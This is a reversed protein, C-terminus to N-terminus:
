DTAGLETAHAPIREDDIESVPAIDLWPDTGYTEACLAWKEKLVRARSKTVSFLASRPMLVGRTVPAIGTQQFILLFAPLETQTAWQECWLNRTDMVAQDANDLHFIADRERILERAAMAAEVYIVDQLNYRYNAITREITKDIPSGNRNAFSKLDVIMRMKLKDFRAKMPVGTERCYWFVSVEPHGGDLAKALEPHALIMRAAIRVRRDTKATVSLKSGHEQMHEAILKDWILAEPDLDLLQEIWDDKKAPRANDDYGKTCPKADLAVIGAKIESTTTLVGAFDAKDLGIAYRDLYVEEGELVFCHIAKGFNFHPKEDEDERDLNLWSSAWFDMSSISMRKLGSTSSAPRAHYDEDSMGFYIGPAPFAPQDKHRPSRIPEAPPADMHPTGLIDAVTEVELGQATLRDYEAKSM